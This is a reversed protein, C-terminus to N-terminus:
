NAAPSAQMATTWGRPHMVYAGVRDGFGSIHHFHYLPAIPQDQMVFDTVDALAKDRAAGVDLAQAKELMEDFAPNKYQGYNLAGAGTEADPSALVAELCVEVSEGSCGGYWVGYEGAGRKTNFVSFPVAVPQVSVGIRAWSQAVAQLTEGDGPYRGAPGNLAVKFGDPFGAEALLAKADEYRPPQATLNPSTGALGNPFFQAAATGYGALIKDVLIGRDIAMSLAQRVKQDRFPNPIANGSKDTVGPATEKALEFQLFNLRAAPVSEVRAGRQKLAEVDRAPVFDAVDVDGTSLAAVRAAPSEVIRFTVESWSPRNGWYDDNRSLELVEGSRWSKFKYPGTGVLETGANLADTTAFGKADRHMIFIASLSLPLTPQSGETEIVITSSDPASVAAIHNTYAQFGGSPPKLFSRIREITYVVDDSTFPSGDHFRVNERLKFEWSTDSLRRWSIALGPQLSLHEDQYVLREYIHSLLSSNENLTSYNPDLTMLKYSTAIRLEQAAAPMTTATCIAMAAVAARIGASPISTLLKM